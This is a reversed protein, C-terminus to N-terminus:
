GRSATWRLCWSSTSLTAEPPRHVPSGSASSSRWAPVDRAASTNSVRPCSHAIMSTHSQNESTPADSRSQSLRLAANSARAIERIGGRWPGSRTNGSTPPQQTTRAVTRLRLSTDSCRCMKRARKGPEARRHSSASAPERGIGASEARKHTRTSPDARKGDRNPQAAWGAVRPSRCRRHRHRRCALGKRAPSATGHCAGSRVHAPGRRRALLFTSPASLRRALTAAPGGSSDCRRPCVRRTWRFRMRPRCWGGARASLKARPRSVMCGRGAVWAPRTAFRMRPRCWRCGAACRHHHRWAM